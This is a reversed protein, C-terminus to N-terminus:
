KYVIKLEILDAFVKIYFICVFLNIVSILWRLKKNAVLIKNWKMMIEKGIIYNNILLPVVVRAYM